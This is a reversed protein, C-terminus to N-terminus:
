SRSGLRGHVPASVAGGGGRVATEPRAVLRRARAGRALAPRAPHVAAVRGRAARPPRRDGAARRSPAGHRLPQEAGRHERGAPGRGPPLEAVRGRRRQPQLALQLPRPAARRAAHGARAPDPEAAPPLLTRRELRLARPVPERAHDGPARRWSLPAGARPRLHWGPELWRPEAEA